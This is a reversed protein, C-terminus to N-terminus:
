RGRWLRFLCFAAGAASLFALFIWGKREGAERFPIAEEPRAQDYALTVKKGTMEDCSWPRDRTRGRNGKGLTKFYEIRYSTRGDRFLVRVRCEEKWFLIESMTEASEVVGEALVDKRSINKAYILEDRAMFFTAVLLAIGCILSSFRNTM